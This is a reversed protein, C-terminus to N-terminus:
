GRALLPPPPAQGPSLDPRTGAALERVDLVSGLFCPRNEAIWRRAGIWRYHELLRRLKRETTRLGVYYKFRRKRGLPMRPQDPDVERPHVYVNSPRGCANDIGISARLFLWPFLRLYGGGAYPIRRSGFGVTATPIELLEGRSCRLLHPGRFPSPFGGHSSAAPCLSADYHFGAAVIEDFAWATAPTMSNGAARFGEVPAGTLDELVRRSAVLDARFSQADHRRVVEHWFSHSAVEHGAAAIRKVLAPFRTAVWGVVFFTAHAGGEAFLELLRDTNREVRSDLSDWLERRPADDTELIHFWDEVDVTLINSRKARPVLGERPRSLGEPV